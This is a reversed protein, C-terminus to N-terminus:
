GDPTPKEASRGGSLEPDLVPVRERDADAPERLDGEVEGPRGVDETAPLDVQVWGEGPVRVRRQQLATLAQERQFRESKARYYANIYALAIIEIASLVKM